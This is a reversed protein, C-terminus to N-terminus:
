GKITIKGKGALEQAPDRPPPSYLEGRAASRVIGWIDIQSLDWVSRITSFDHDIGTALRYGETVVPITLELVKQEDGYQPLRVRPRRSRGASHALVEHRYKRLSAIEARGKATSVNKLWSSVRTRLERERQDPTSRGTPFAVEEEGEGLFTEVRRIDHTAQREREVLKAVLGADSLLGALTLISRVDHETDDWLRTLAMVQFFLISHRVLDFADGAFGINFCGILENDSAAPRLVQETAIAKVLDQKIREAVDLIKQM